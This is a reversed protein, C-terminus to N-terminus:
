EIEGKNRTGFSDVWYKFFESSEKKTCGFENQIYAPAGFINTIGSARLTDLYQMVTDTDIGEVSPRKANFM